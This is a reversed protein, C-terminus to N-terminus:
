VAAADRREISLSKYYYVSGGREIKRLSGARAIRRVTSSDINGGRVDEGAEEGARQAGFVTRCPALSIPSPPQHNRPHITPASRQALLSSTLDAHGCNIGRSKIKTAGRKAPKSVITNRM